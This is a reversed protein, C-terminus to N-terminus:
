EESYVYKISQKFSPSNDNTALQWQLKIEQQIEFYLSDYEEENIVNERILGAKLRLIPDRKKWLDLEKKSRNVGVDIDERWDVHGYLRFTVAELFTPTKNDRSHKILESARNLCEKINNGDITKHPIGSSVAFRAQSKFPQRKSIHMHSSFLNNECVFIIPCNLIKALNLSEHFVGEEVAGDGFYAISVNKQSKLKSALASGVAIPITGSVIPVSGYFGHELDQLHMSGGM